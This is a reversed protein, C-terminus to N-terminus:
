RMSEMIDFAGDALEHLTEASIGEIMAAVGYLVGQLIHVTEICPNAVVSDSHVVADNAGVAYLMRRCDRGWQRTDETPPPCPVTAKSM